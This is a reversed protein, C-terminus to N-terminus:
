FTPWQGIGEKGQLRPIQWDPRGNIRFFDSRLYMKMFAANRLTGVWLEFILGILCALSIAEFLIGTSMSATAQWIAQAKLQFTGSSINLCNTRWLSQPTPPLWFKRPLDQSSFLCTLHPFSVNEHHTTCWEDMGNLLNESCHIVREFGDPDLPNLHEDTILTAIEIIKDKNYNLGTM